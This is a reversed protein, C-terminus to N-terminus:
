HEHGPVMEMETMEIHGQPFIRSLESGADTMVHIM